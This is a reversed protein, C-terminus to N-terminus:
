TAESVVDESADPLSLIDYLKVHKLASTLIMGFFDKFFIL